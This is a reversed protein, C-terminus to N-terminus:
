FLDFVDDRVGGSIASPGGLFRLYTIDGANDSLAAATSKPLLTKRTLLMVSGYVGQAAGGSLADAFNEGTAIAVGDWGMGMTEVGYEAVKAATAYRNVGDIREASIGAKLLVVAVEEPMAAEGGLLVVDNVGAATMADITQDSIVSHPALYVPMGAYAALPSAALADAFNEGTAVFARGDYGDGLIDVVEAAILEATRYRNAGGIRVVQGQEGLLDRLDAMVGSSLAKPGGLVYVQTAGLREIEDAVAPLLTTRRTLLIPADLVGALASGGLADPYNEGTAIVVTEAGEPFADRSVELATGYRTAGELDQVLLDEPPGGLYGSVYYNIRHNLYDAVYAHGNEAIAIGLPLSLQGPGSGGSGWTALLDGQPSFTKVCNNYTDTVYVFGDADVTLALWPSFGSTWSLEFAGSSSFKQIRANQADAVYVTGDVGVEVGLPYDFEGNGTGASRDTTGWKSVFVGNSTFRKVQNNGTDAVYVDGDARVSLGFGNRFQDDATGTGGWSMIFAGTSSFKSVRNNTYELVYVNGDADLGVDVPTGLQGPGDGSGGIKSIFSGDATFKKVYNNASDAVYVNGDGDVAVGRPLNFQADGLGMSGWSGVFTGPADPADACLAPTAGAVLLAALLVCLAIARSFRLKAM